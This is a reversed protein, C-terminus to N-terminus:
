WDHERADLCVQSGVTGGQAVHQNVLCTPLAFDDCDCFRGFNVLRQGCNCSAIFEFCIVSRSRIVQEQDIQIRHPFNIRYMTGLFCLRINTENITFHQCLPLLFDQCRSSSQLYRSSRSPEYQYCKLTVLSMTCGAPLLIETSIISDGIM